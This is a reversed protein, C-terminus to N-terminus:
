PRVQRVNLNVRTTQMYRAFGHAHWAPDDAAPLAMSGPLPGDLVRPVGTRLASGLRVCSPISTRAGHYAQRSPGAMILVDGSRVLLPLPPKDKTAGGVLFVAPLGISISVLPSTADVEAQDVHATLTDKPQACTTLPSV